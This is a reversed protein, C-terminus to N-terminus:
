PKGGGTPIGGPGAQSHIDMVEGDLEHCDGYDFGYPFGYRKVLGL